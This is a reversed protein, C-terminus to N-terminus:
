KLRNADNKANVNCNLLNFSFILYFAVYIDIIEYLGVGLKKLEEIQNVEQIDLYFGMGGNQLIVNHM